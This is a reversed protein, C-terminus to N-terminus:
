KKKVIYTDDNVKIKFDPYGEIDIENVIAKGNKIESLWDGNNNYLNGNLNNGDIIELNYNLMNENLSAEYYYDKKTKKSSFIIIGLVVIVIVSIIIIM